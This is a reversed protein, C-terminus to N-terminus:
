TGIKDYALKYLGEMKRVAESHSPHNKDRFKVMFEPTSELEKIKNLASEPTKLDEKSQGTVLRDSPLSAGARVLMDVIAPSYNSEEIISALEKSGYQKLAAQMLNMKSDFEDGYNNKLWSLNSSNIKEMEEKQKGQLNNSYEYM